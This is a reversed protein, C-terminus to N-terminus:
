QEKSNTDAGARNLAQRLILTTMHEGILSVLIDMFTSFLQMSAAASDAPDRGDFSRRLLDFEPDARRARPDFQLWPFQRAARQASRLLLAEFGDEGIITVLANALLQLLAITSDVVAPPQAALYREVIQRPPEHDSAM